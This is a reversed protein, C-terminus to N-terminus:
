SADTSVEGVPHDGALHHRTHAADHVQYTACYTHDDGHLMGRLALITALHLRGKVDVRGTSRTTFSKATM